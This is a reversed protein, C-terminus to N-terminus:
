AARQRRIRNRDAERRCERCGRGKGDPRLYTNAKDYLHGRPCETARMHQSSLSESRANNVAPSVPELHDPNVCRPNRCLHDLQLETLVPGNVHEYWVRHAMRVKGSADQFKGYGNQLFGTWEWCGSDAKDVKAWFRDELSPRGDFHPDGHKRLRLYHKQCYGYGEVPNSCESISCPRRSTRKSM